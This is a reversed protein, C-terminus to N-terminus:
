NQQILFNNKIFKAYLKHNHINQTQGAHIIQKHKTLIKALTFSKGCFECKNDKKDEHVGCVIHKKFSGAESFSKGGYKEQYHNKMYHKSTNSKERLIYKHSSKKDKENEHVMQIHLKLAESQAFSKGCNHCKQDKQRFKKEIGSVSIIKEERRGGENHVANMHNRLHQVRIFTKLCHHCIHNKHVAKVHLKLNETDQFSKGCSGCDVDHKLSDHHIRSIHIKVSESQSFFTGCLDCKYYRQGKHFEQKIEDPM